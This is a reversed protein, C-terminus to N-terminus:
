ITSYTYLWSAGLTKSANVYIKPVNRVAEVTSVVLNVFCGFIVLLIQPLAGIGMWLILIPIIALPPVPRLIEIIPDMFSEIYKNSAILLGVIIGLASGALFGTFQRALTYGMHIALDKYSDSIVEWLQIPGPLFLPKVFGGLSLILWLTILTLISLASIVKYRM